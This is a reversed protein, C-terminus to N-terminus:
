RLIHRTGDPSEVVWAPTLEIFEKTLRPVYAPYVFRVPSATPQQLMRNKLVDGGVLTMQMKEVVPSEMTLLSREYASVVGKQANLRMYGFDTKEDSVIPYSGYYQQFVFENGDGMNDNGATDRLLFKGNWGGHRNVFQVSAVLNQPIDNRSDVPAIPDTYSIWKTATKVRLGRKSDTYIVSGDQEPLARTTEPDPFLSKQMQEPTFEEYPLRYKVIKVPETPLYYDGIEWTYPTQYEGFGVFEELDKVTLDAKTSEYIFTGEENGFLTRVDDEKNNNMFIWIRNITDSELAIEGQIQMMQSLLNMPIGQNFRIEVGKFDARVEKWDVRISSLRQFGDFTRGKLRQFILDYFQTEPYLLTHRNEGFHLIMQEPQLLNGVTEETGKLDTQIYSSEAENTINFDPINYALFYSQLLSMGVLLILLASKIKERM